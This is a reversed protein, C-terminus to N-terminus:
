TAMHWEKFVEFAFNSPRMSVARLLLCRSWSLITEPRAGPPVQTVISRSQLNEGREIQVQMLRRVTDNPYMVVGAATGASGGCFLQWVVKSRVM